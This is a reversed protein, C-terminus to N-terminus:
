TGHTDYLPRRAAGRAVVRSSRTVTSGWFGVGSFVGAFFAGALFVVAFFVAVFAAFFAEGVVVAGRAARAAAEGRAAPGRRATIRPPLRMGKPRAPLAYALALLWSM